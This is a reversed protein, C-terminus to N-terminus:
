LNWPDIRGGPGDRNGSTRELQWKKREEDDRRLIFYAAVVVKEQGSPNCQVV